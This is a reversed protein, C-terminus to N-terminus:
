AAARAAALRPRVERDFREMASVVRGADVEGFAVLLHEVGLDVFRGLQAAVREDDGAAVFGSAPPSEDFRVTVRASFLPAPRGAADAAERVIPMWAAYQDPSAASSHYGDAVRGARRLAPESRGGIWIPPGGPQAPPPGFVFDDFSFFRGEFPEQSGSWLHRWLRIAEELYRGREGFREAVGVNAFEAENWGVGVGVILRGRSFSDITALEKALVVANRMPVVIVSTGLILPKTRAALHPLVAVADFIDGYIAAASHPVLLHDTTMASHWGLREATDAAAEVAEVNAGPLFNPLAIGLKLESM